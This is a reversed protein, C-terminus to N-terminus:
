NRNYEDFDLEAFKRKQEIYFKWMISKRYIEPHNSVLRHRKLKRRASILVPLAKLFSIHAKLVARFGSTYFGALFKLAAVHDLLYRTVLIKYFKEQPLNKFLM